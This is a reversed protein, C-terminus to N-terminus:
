INVHIVSSFLIKIQNQLANQLKQLSQLTGCLPHVKVINSDLPYAKPIHLCCHM